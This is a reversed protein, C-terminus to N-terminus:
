GTYVSLKGGNNRKRNYSKMFASRDVLFASAGFAIIEFVGTWENGGGSHPEAIARPLHLLILWSFLMIGLLTTAMRRYLNMMIATGSAILCTGTFYTWILHGPIWKPIFSSVFDTYVFHDIGFGIMLMALFYKGLPLLRQQTKQWASNIENGPLSAAVMLAGGSLALAKLTDTWVGLSAAVGSLHFPIHFCLVFSLLLCGLVASAPRAKFEFIIGLCCVLIILSFIWIWIVQEQRWAPYSPPLIVTLFDGHILQQVAMAGLSLAFLLRWLRNIREM